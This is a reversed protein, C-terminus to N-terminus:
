SKIMDFSQQMAHISNKSVRGLGTAQLKILYGYRSWFPGLLSLAILCVLESMRDCRVCITVINEFPSKRPTGCAPTGRLRSGNLSGLKSSNM